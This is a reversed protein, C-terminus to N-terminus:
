ISISFQLASDVGRANIARLPSQAESFIKFM